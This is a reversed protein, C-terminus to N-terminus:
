QAAEFKYVGLKVVKYRTQDDFYDGNKRSPYHYHWANKAQSSGNWTMKGRPTEWLQGTETDEIAYIAIDKLNVTM